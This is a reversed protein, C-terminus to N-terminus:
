EGELQKIKSLAEDLTNFIFSNNDQRLIPSFVLLIFGNEAKQISFSSYV